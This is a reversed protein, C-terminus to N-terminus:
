RTASRQTGSAASLTGPLERAWAVARELEGFVQVHHAPRRIWFIATLMGRLLASRFVLACGVPAHSEGVEDAEMKDTLMQRQTPSIGTNERLDVVIVYPSDHRQIVARHHALYNAFDQDSVRHAPPTIIIVPWRSDDLQITGM